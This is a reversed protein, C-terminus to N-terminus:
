LLDPMWPGSFHDTGPTFFGGLFIYFDADLGRLKDTTGWQDFMKIKGAVFSWINGYSEGAM